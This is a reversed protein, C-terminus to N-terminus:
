RTGGDPGRSPRRGGPVLGLMQKMKQKQEPTMNPDKDIVEIRHKNAQEVAEPTIVNTDRECGFAALLLALALGVRKAM